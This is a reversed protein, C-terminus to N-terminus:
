TLEAGHTRQRLVKAIGRTKPVRIPEIPPPLCPVGHRGYSTEVLGQFQGLRLSDPGGTRRGRSHGHRDGGVIESQAIGRVRIAGDSPLAHRTRLLRDGDAAVKAVGEALFGVLDSGMENSAVGVTDQQDGRVSAADVTAEARPGPQDSVASPCTREDSEIRSKRPNLRM